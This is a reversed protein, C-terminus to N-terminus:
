AGMLSAVRERHWTADGFAVESAKARKMYLHLDHEWTMGIGGHLQIGANSVKRSADSAYAKAMSVAMAADPQKEDIAWAAYYVLSKANEVEVLMDSCKHKVGQYSGIPKGFAVRQIFSAGRGGYEKPWSIGVWGAAYMKKQWAVRNDLTERDPAVRSDSADEVKLDETLNADLWARFERRFAAHEPADAFDM